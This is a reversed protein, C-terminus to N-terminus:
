LLMEVGSLKWTFLGHRTFIFKGPTSSGKGRVEVTSWNVYRIDYKPPPESEQAQPAQPPSAPPPPAEPPAQPAQPAQPAPPTAVKPQGEQMMVMVGAPSVVTEVLQNIVGMALMQGLGILPNDKDADKMQQGMFTLMQAKFSERLAPFDVHSSLATADRAELASRMRYITWHPSFYLAAALALLCALVLAGIAKKSM